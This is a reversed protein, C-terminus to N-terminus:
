SVSIREAAARFEPAKEPYETGYQILNARYERKATVWDKPWYFPAPPVVGYSAIELATKPGYMGDIKLGEAKQFDEVMKRNEKYKKASQLMLALKAARVQGAAFEPTRESNLPAAPPKTVPPEPQKPGLDVLNAGAPKPAPAPPKVPAPKPAIPAPKPGVAPPAKPKTVSPAADGRTPITALIQQVKKLAVKKEKTKALEKEMEAAARLMSDVFEYGVAALREATARVLAPNGTALANVVAQTIEDQVAPARLGAKAAKELKENASTADRAARQQTEEDEASQVPLKGGESAHAKKSGAAIVIGAVALIGFGVALKKSM